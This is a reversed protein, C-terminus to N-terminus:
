KGELGDVIKETVIDKEDGKQTGEEEEEDSEGGIQLMELEQPTIEKPMQVEKKVEEIETEEEEEEKEANGDLSTKVEEGANGEKLVLPIDVSELVLVESVVDGEKPLAWDPLPTEYSWKGEVCNYKKAHLYIGLEHAGPDTYLPTDCISCTEGSMREAKRKEYDAVLEDHYAVAEAVEEKGMRSLRTIIDEDDGEGGVGLNPGFVKRNCYIPDNAIPHGLFQLHVRIQHTRGTFPLCQVVSYDKTPNYSRRRFLTKAHKGNAKVRNLGLKPSIALIPQEVVVDGEPFEGKVMAVYEKKITRTQLQLMMSKSAEKTKAIFMLGSTLRDLRNCPMPNWGGREFRMIEVVSNYHYRGAPHVPMGAPKNIVIMDDTECVITVPKDTVPPEHRHLTHTVIDGNRIIQDLSHTPVGNISIMGTLVANKYYEQPRDRFETGYIEFITKNRWREKCFTNYTYHYPKVRRMGGEFYWPPISPNAPTIAVAPPQATSESEPPTTAAAAM